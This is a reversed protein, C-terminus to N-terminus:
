KNYKGDIPFGVYNMMVRERAIVDPPYPTDRDMIRIDRRPTVLQPQQRQQHHQTYIRHENRITTEDNGNHKYVQQHKKENDSPSEDITSISNSPL